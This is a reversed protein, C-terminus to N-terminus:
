KFYTNLADQVVLKSEEALQSATKEGNMLPVLSFLDGLGLSGWIDFQEKTGMMKLYDFNRETIMQNEFWETDDRLTTDGAYWNTWDNFVNYVLEADKTGKPIFYYSGATINHKNNEYSGSPGVPWPVVGIEFALDSGGYEAMVWAATPWFAILGDAYISTNINWDDQNWPKAVKDTNYMNYIFDFVEITAPSDVGTTTSGAIHTGNAMLMQNLLNTWWGGYGYVDKVGDGDKDVTLKLMYERWVDWTWEGRDYLDQPNELGAEEIMDLNFALTYPNLNVATQKFLYCGAKDMSELNLYSLIEQDNLIDSDASLFSTLDTAYGNLTAPIGFQLDVEYIDCDPAGAMISTNISEITGDWTLNVFKLEVNYKEEIARVNDLQMQALVEDTVNPNDSIEDHDSTFYHDYWTGVTIVRKEASKVPAKTAAPENKDVGETINVADKTDDNKGSCAMLSMVMVLVTLLAVLKQIRKKSM